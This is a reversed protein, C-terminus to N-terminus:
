PLSTTLFPPKGGSKQIVVEWYQAPALWGVALRRQHGLAGCCSSNM